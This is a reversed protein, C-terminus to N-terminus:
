LKEDALNGVCITICGNQNAPVATFPIIRRKQGSYTSKPQIAHFGFNGCKGSADYCGSLANGKVQSKESTDPALEVANNDWSLPRTLGCHVSIHTM